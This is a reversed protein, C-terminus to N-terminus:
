ISPTKLDSPSSVAFFARSFMVHQAVQSPPVRRRQWNGAPVFDLMRPGSPCALELEQCSCLLGVKRRPKPVSTVLPPPTDPRTWLLPAPQRPPSAAGLLESRFIIGCFNVRARGPLLFTPTFGDQPRSTQPITNPQSPSGHLLAMRGFHVAFVLPQASSEVPWGPIPSAKRRAKQRPRSLARFRWSARHREARQISPPKDFRPPKVTCCARGGSHKANRSPSPCLPHHVSASWKNYPTCPRGGKWFM